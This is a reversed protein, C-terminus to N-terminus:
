GRGILKLWPHSHEEIWAKCEKADLEGYRYKKWSDIAVRLQDKNIGIYRAQMRETVAVQGQAHDEQITAFLLGAMEDKTVL